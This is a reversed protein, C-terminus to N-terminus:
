KTGGPKLLLVLILLSFSVLPAWAPSTVAMTVSESVGIVIGAVLPGIAGGLGGLMVTAFVVGIWAYIQSPALTYSLAICVGAIGAFAACLGALGMALAKQNMGYAAAIPADEATARLARGLDTHRLVAYVAFALTLAAVLTMLEPVPVYLAGIKFKATGYSSELKRFDATWIGQIITEVIVTLGFTVLLSNFPTVQFRAFVWQIAVGVLAFAPVIVALTVLPDMWHSLQYCLYAALFALAFHALNIQRLLGWSLSLGLGLLGYLAGIFLGSLVSQALLTASPM